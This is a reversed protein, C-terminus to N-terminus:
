LPQPPNRPAAPRLPRKSLSGDLLSRQQFLREPVRQGCPALFNHCLHSCESRTLAVRGNHIPNGLTIGVGLDLGDRFPVLRLPLLDADVGHTAPLDISPLKDADTAAPAEAASTQAGAIACPVARTTTMPPPKAPAVQARCSLRKSGFIWTVNTSVFGVNM